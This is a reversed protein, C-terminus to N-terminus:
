RKGRGAGLLAKEFEGVAASPVRDARRVIALSRALRGDRCELGERAGLAFKSVFGFGVGASVMRKISEISRLEMVPRLSVGQLEAARDVVERVASGAEFAVIPEGDIDRWRFTRRNEFRSRPPAILRLEDDLWPTVLLDQVGAGKLPLTVIGLDLEGDLVSRAVAGSGAERIYFRVGPHARRFRSVVPPGLYTIATAGGGLSISGRELGLLERVSSKAEEAQRLAEEAHRLFARGAETPEVGKPTRHLLPAGVESELKRLMASLAPQTVGLTEAARTMHGEAVIAAFYRLTTLEM